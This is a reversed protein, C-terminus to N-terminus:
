VGIGNGILSSNTKKLILRVQGYSIDDVLDLEVAKDALLRLSWKEYGEPADSCALATIKARDLGNFVPPRGTRPEDELVDLGTKNYKKAWTSATQIVVGVIKAVDTFTRGRDLELLAIARKYTKAPLSGKKILEQLYTRDDDTLTIHQKNM